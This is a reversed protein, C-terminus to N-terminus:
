KAAMLLYFTADHSEKVKINDIITELIQYNGAFDVDMEKLIKNIKRITVGTIKSVYDIIDKRTAIVKFM